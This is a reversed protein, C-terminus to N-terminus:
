GRIPILVIRDSGNLPHDICRVQGKKGFLVIVTARDRIGDPFLSLCCQSTEVALARDIVCFRPINLKM